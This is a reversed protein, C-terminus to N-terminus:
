DISKYQREDYLSGTLPNPLFLPDPNVGSGPAIGSLSDRFNKVDATVQHAEHDKASSWMEVIKMHNPRNAQTLADFRVNGPHKRSANVLTIVMENGCPGKESVQRKCPAFQEPPIIDVHTVVYITGGTGKALKAPDAAVLGAHAREDYPSYLYPQLAKRFAITQAAQAHAKRAGEDAWTEIMVFHNPHGVRQLTEARLNGAEKRSAASQQKLMGAVKAASAPAVEVYSVIFYPSTSLITGDSLKVQANAVPLLGFSLIAAVFLTRFSIRM